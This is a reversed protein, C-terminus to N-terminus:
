GYREIFSLDVVPEVEAPDLDLAVIYPLGGGVSPWEFVGGASTFILSEARRRPAGPEDLYVIEDMSDFVLTSAPPIYSVILDSQYSCTEEPDIVGTLADDLYFRIRVNRTETDGTHLSIVPAFDTWDPIVDAPITVTRRTWNLPATWTSWTIGPPTPPPIVGPHLPDYVPQYVAPQCEDEAVTVPDSITAGTPQYGSPWPSSTGPDLWSELFGLEAGFEDPNRATLTFTVSFMYGGSPMKRRATIVPATTLGVRRLRRYLQSTAMAPDALVDAVSNCARPDGWPAMLPESALYHVSYGDCVSSASHAGTVVRKLWQLGFEAGAESAAILAVNFVVAKGAKRLGSLSAGDGQSETVVASTTSDDVGTIDLPYVGAFDASAPIRATYWPAEDLVAGLYPPHELLDPLMRNEFLPKFWHLGLLDAYTETRTTNILETEGIGVYGHWM